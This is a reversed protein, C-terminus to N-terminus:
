ASVNQQQRELWQHALRIEEQTLKVADELPNEAATFKAIDTAVIADTVEHHARDLAKLKRITLYEALAAAEVLVRGGGAGRRDRGNKKIGSIWVEEGTEVDFYNASIGQGYSKRFARGNFYVTTKTRSLVVRGIWAPGRDGYGSKIEIYRLLSM